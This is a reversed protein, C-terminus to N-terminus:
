QQHDTGAGDTDFEGREVACETRIHSHDFHQRLDQRDFVVLDLGEGALTELLLTDLDVGVGFDGLEVLFGVADDGGDLLAALSLRQFHFPDDRRDAHDAIDLLEPQFFEAHLGVATADDDVREALGAHRADVSDAVDGTRGHQGVFGLVLAHDADLRDLAQMRVRHVLQHDGAARIARRLDSGHAKGFLRGFLLLEVDADAAKGEDAVALRNRQALILAQHLDDEVLLGPLQEARMHDAGFDGFQDLTVYHRHIQFGGFFFQHVGHERM